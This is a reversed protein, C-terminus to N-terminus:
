SGPVRGALTAWVTKGDSEQQTGWADAMESILGLGRGGVERPGPNRRAPLTMSADRVSITIDSSDRQISVRFPSRAHLIANTALESGMLASVEVEADFHWALLVERVFRRVSPLTAAVPVFVCSAQSRDIQVDLPESGLAITRAHQDCVRKGNALSGAGEIISVPYACFLEFDLRSALDNWLSEVEIAETVQGSAWLLAVMEGFVRVPGVAGALVPEFRAAFAAADPRGRMFARICTAADLSQYRGEQRVAGVSLDSSLAQHLSARHEPTAVVIATGGDRLAEGLYESVTGTLEDDDVYFGVVHGADVPVDMDVNM